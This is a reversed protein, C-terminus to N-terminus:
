NSRPATPSRSTPEQVSGKGFTRAGVVVARNRDQLAATVIEAASATSADVLVVLPVTTRGGRRADFVREGADRRVYSVVQGGDLFAGATEVAETVLGGPNGRLDLVVGAGVAPSAVLARVQAGVGRTFAAVRVVTYDDRM